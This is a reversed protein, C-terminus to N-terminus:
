GHVTRAPTLRAEAQGAAVLSRRWAFFGAWALGWFVLYLVAFWYYEKVWFVGIAVTNAIVWGIWNEIRKRAQLWQSVVSVAFVFADAYALAAGVRFMIAGWIGWIAVVAAIAYFRSRRGLWRVPLPNKESRGLTWYIWGYVLAVLFMGQLVAESYLRGQFCVFGFITVQVLGVPFTWVNQRMMLVVGAVGLVTAIQELGSAGTLGAWISHLIETM